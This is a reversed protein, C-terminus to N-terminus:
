PRTTKEEPLSSLSENRENQASLSQFVFLDFEAISIRLLESGGGGGGGGWAPASLGMSSAEWECMMGLVGVREAMCLARMCLMLVKKAIDM